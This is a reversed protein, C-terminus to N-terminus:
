EPYDTPFKLIKQHVAYYQATDTLASSLLVLEIHSDAFDIVVLATHLCYMDFCIDYDYDFDLGLISLCDSYDSCDSSHISSYNSFCAVVELSHVVGQSFTSKSCASACISVECM